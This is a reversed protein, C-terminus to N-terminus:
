LNEEKTKMNNERVVYSTGAELHLCALDIANIGNCIADCVHVRGSYLSFHQNQTKQTIDGRENAQIHHQYAHKTSSYQDNAFLGRDRLRSIRDSYTM